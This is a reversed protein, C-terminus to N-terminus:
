FLPYEDIVEDLLGSKLMDDATQKMGFKEGDRILKRWESRKIGSHRCMMDELLQQMQTGDEAAKIAQEKETGDFVIHVGAHMYHVFFVCNRLAIRRHCCQLMAFAASGCEGMAVGHIRVRKFLSAFDSFCTAGAVDGGTSSFLVTLEETGDDISSLMSQCLEEVNHYTIERTVTFIGRLALGLSEQDTFYDM